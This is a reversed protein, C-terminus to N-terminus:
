LVTFSLGNSVKSVLYFFYFFSDETLEVKNLVNLLKRILTGFIDIFHSGDQIKQCLSPVIVQVGPWFAELSQFVPLTITGKKMHAWM